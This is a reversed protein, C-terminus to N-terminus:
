ESFIEIFKSFYETIPLGLDLDIREALDLQFLGDQSQLLTNQPEEDALLDLSCSLLATNQGNENLIVALKTSSYPTGCFSIALKQEASHSYIYYFNPLALDPDSGEFNFFKIREPTDQAFLKNCSELIWKRSNPHSKSGAFGRKAWYSFDLTPNQQSQFLSPLTELASLQGSEISFWYDQIGNSILLYPANVKLNYRAIQIAAKETLQIEPAKCEVLLIPEFDKGYCILDTRSSSKDRPLNVPAEFSIRSPSFNAEEILYELLQLRVREEPRNKFAKKLVPNWLLKEGERFVFQPYHHTAKSLM